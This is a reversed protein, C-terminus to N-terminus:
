HKSLQIAAEPTKAMQDTLMWAAYNAYGLLSGKQARLQALRAILRLTENDDGHEARTWSVRFRKARLGTTLSTLLPPQTTNQLALM